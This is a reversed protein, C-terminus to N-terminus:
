INCNLNKRRKYFSIVKYQNRFNSKKLLNDNINFNENIFKNLAKINKFHFSILYKM